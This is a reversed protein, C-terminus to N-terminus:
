VTLRVERMNFRAGRVAAGTNHFRLGFSSHDTFPVHTHGVYVDELGERVQPELSELYHRLRRAVRSRTFYLRLFAQDIRAANVLRYGCRLLGGRRPKQRWRQRYRAFAADDMPRQVVDGHLFLCNGLRVHHEHWSVNDFTGSLERLVEVYDEVCDHNGLTLHFQCRPHSQVLHSVWDRAAEAAAHQQPQRCWQFDFIDGNLVFFDAELAAAEIARRYKPARSRISFLHLDSVVYGTAM